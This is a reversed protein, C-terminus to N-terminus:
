IKTIKKVKLHATKEIRDITKKIPMIIVKKEPSYAHVLKTSNLCVAVHGKWFILDGKKFNKRKLKKKSYKIQDKTDRPFYKNNYQYFIQILASCDIGDHTKGGWKYKIGLFLKLIKIFNTEKKNLSIIDKVNLWKNKEFMIFNKNKKLIQIKSGFPLFNNSKYKKSNGPYKLIISKLACIKYTPKFKKVQNSIKIFGIYNDFSTKIKLFNKKKLLIKYKEGYLIQSSIKSNISPFEYINLKPSRCFFNNQM